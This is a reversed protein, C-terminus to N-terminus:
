YIRTFGTLAEEEITLSIEKIIREYEWLELPDTVFYATGQLTEKNKFYYIDIDDAHANFKLGHPNKFFEPGEYMSELLSLSQETVEFGWLFYIEFEGFNFM